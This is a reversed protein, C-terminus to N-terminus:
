PIRRLILAEPVDSPLVALQAPRVGRYVTLKQGENVALSTVAPNLAALEQLTLGFRQGVTTLTDGAAAPYELHEYRAPLSPICPKAVTLEDALGVLQIPTVDGPVYGFVHLDVYDVGAVQQITTIADSLYVPRGLESAAFGFREILAARVTPEVLDWSYDPAVNIGADLVILRLERVAVRVPVGADGLDVLATGAHHDSRRASRATRGRGRRRHRPGGRAQRRVAQGREGQRHRGAGQRLGEYDAVSVLRDLARLRLPIVTRADDPGDADTGGTAPFPNTAANVGLPRTALQNITGVPM